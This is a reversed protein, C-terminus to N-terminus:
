QKVPVTLMAAAPPTGFVENFLDGMRYGALALREQAIEFAKKKYKDSPMEFWNVDKYVETTAINYSEAKWIDFKDPNIRDKLKGYPYLKMIDQAIPDLYDADCQDKSNPMYRVVISDWFWHLNEQKDRPTGKPTLLFLNGGQDGKPNTSTTRSSAHLPQHMDGILHELWAIAIAKDADSASSSRIVQNFDSIKQMALGSPEADAVPEVKGDKLTWFTDAYHWPSNAYKKNRVEFKTDRIIDAWTAMLMFFERKRTDPLRSGYGAYFTGIQSDEPAALLIKVVKERVDPTMQQWAIYATIKHGTEDWAFAPISFCLGLVILSAFSAAAKLM